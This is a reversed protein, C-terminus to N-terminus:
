GARWDFQLTENRAFRQLHVAIVEQLRPLKEADDHSAVIHLIEGEVNFEANGTEALPILAHGDHDNRIEFKHRWHNCLWRLLRTPDNSHVDALSSAM